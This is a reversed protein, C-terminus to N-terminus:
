SVEVVGSGFTADCFTQMATKQLSSLTGGAINVGLVRDSGTGSFSWSYNVNDKFLTVEQGAGNINTKTINLGPTSLLYGELRNKRKQESAINGYIVDYLDDIDTVDQHASCRKTNYTEGSPTTYSEVYSFVGTSDDFRQCIFCECTDPKYNYFRIAM